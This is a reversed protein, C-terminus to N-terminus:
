KRGTLQDFIQRIGQRYLNREEDRRSADIPWEEFYQMMKSVVDDRSVGEDILDQIRGQMTQLYSILEKLEEPGMLGGRGPVITDVDMVQIARLTTIWDPVNSAGFYPRYDNVVTDGAFLVNADPVYLGVNHPTHGPLHLFELERQGLYMTLRDFLMLNPYRLDFETGLMEAGAEDFGKVLNYFSEKAKPTMRINDSTGDHAIVDGPLFLSGMIHDELHDTFLIYKINRRRTLQEKWRLALTPLMPTDVVVFGEVTEVAGVNVMRHTEQYYVGDAIRQM